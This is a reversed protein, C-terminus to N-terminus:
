KRVIKTDYARNNIITGKKAYIMVNKQQETVIEPNSPAVNVTDSSGANVTFYRGDGINITDGKGVKNENQDAIYEICRAEDMDIIDSYNKGDTEAGDIIKLNGTQEGFISSGVHIKSATNNPLHIIADHGVIRIFGDKEKKIEVKGDSKTLTYTIGGISEVTGPKGM